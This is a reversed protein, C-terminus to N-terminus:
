VYGDVLLAPTVPETHVRGSTIVPTTVVTQPIGTAVPQPYRHGGAPDGM